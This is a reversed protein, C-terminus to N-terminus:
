LNRALDKLGQINLRAALAKLAIIFLSAMAGILLFNHFTVGALM